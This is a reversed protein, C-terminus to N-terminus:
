HSMMICMAMGQVLTTLALESIRWTKKKIAVKDGFSSEMEGSTLRRCENTCKWKLPHVRGLLRDGIEEAM